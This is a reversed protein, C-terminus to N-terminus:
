KAKALREAIKERLWKESAISSANDIDVLLKTLEAKSSSNIKTLRKTYKILNNYSSRKRAPFEKHRGLFTRFSEMLSYLAETEGIEFYTTLLTAKSNLNYTMDEYEVSQLLSIVDRYKKQYLLVQSTNFSIANAKFKEPLYKSYNNIFQLAWDTNGVQLSITTINRFHWPSIAGKFTLINKALLDKYLEFTEIRFNEKGRNIKRICYNLASFYVFEAEHFPFKQGHIILLKKLKFYHDENAPETQTLYMTYYVVLNPHDDIKIDSNRLKNNLDPVVYSHNYISQHSLALCTYRFLESISFLTINKIVEEVPRKRKRDHQAEGLDYMKSQLLYKNFYYESSRDTQSEIAKELNRLSSSYLKDIREELVCDVLYKLKRVRDGEFKEQSLYQEVLKLLDSQYKRFRADNLSRNPQLCSWWREKSPAHKEPDNVLEVYLEFLQVLQESRNFYPSMLFKRLRNQRYRDFKVLISYLKSSRM